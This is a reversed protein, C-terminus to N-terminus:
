NRRKKGMQISISDTFVFIHRAYPLTLGSIRDKNLQAATASLLPVLFLADGSRVPM